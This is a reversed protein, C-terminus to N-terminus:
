RLSSLFQTLLAYFADPQDLMAFHRAPSIVAVRAYPAGAVLSRYFALNAAESLGFSAYFAADYPMIELTPISIKSLNPRLDATLDEELWAAVAKPDSKAELAATTGVLSADRTGITRMFNTEYALAKAPDLSAYQAAAQQAMAAREQATKGALLPFVPLGDVAVIARLREPHQQALLFALTGGLSHGVVVPSAINKDALMQWFDAAFTAFLPTKSTAPRGDFGPLTIAYITYQASFHAITGYWTWPGSALGPVLVLAQPGSGYRDVHLSGADFSASPTPAPPLTAAPAGSVAGFTLAIALVARRAFQHRHM